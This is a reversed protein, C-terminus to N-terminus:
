ERLTGYLTRLGRSLAAGIISQHTEVPLITTSLRFADGRWISLIEDMRHMDGLMDAKAAFRNWVERVNEPMADVTVAMHAASEFEGACMYVGATPASHSAVMAEAQTILEMDDWWISPSIALYRRFSAPKTLLAHLTFLGGLSAGTLLANAPDIPFEAELAPRLEELIFSLFADGGGSAVVSTGLMMPMFPDFAPLPTPTLDRNRRIMHPPDGDVPYGISIAFLAPLEGGMTMTRTASVLAGACFAADLAYAAGVKTGEALPAEPASVCIRFVDGVQESRVLWVETNSFFDTTTRSLIQM